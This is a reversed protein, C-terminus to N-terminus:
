RSRATDGAAVRVEFACRQDGALVSSLLKVSVNGKGYIAEWNHLLSLESCHCLRPTSIVGDAVLDCGCHSYYVEVRDDLLAYDFDAFEQKLLALAEHLSRGEAFARRYVRESYSASCAQACRALLHNARDADRDIFSALAAFWHRYFRNDKSIGM